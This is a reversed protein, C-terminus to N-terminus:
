RATRTNDARGGRRATRPVTATSEDLKELLEPTAQTAM